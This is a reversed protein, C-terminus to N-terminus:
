GHRRWTQKKEEAPPIEVTALVIAEYNGAPNILWQPPDLSIVDERDAIDQLQQMLGPMHPAHCAIVEIKQDGYVSSM